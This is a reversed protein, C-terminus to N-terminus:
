STPSSEPEGGMRWMTAEAGEALRLMEEDTEGTGWHDRMMMLPSVLDDIGPWADPVWLQARRM